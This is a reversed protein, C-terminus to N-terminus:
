PFISMGTIKNILLGSPRDLHNLEAGPYLTTIVTKGIIYRGEGAMLTKTKLGWMNHMIVPQGQYQGLYLVIHGPMWILTRLAIGQTRIINEKDKASLGALNIRRGQRAQQSSNRPLWFGFPTMYDRTMASCDRNAYMGGWGYPQGMFGQALFVQNDLTMPLPFPAMELGKMDAKVLVAKRSADAAPMLLMPRTPSEMAVPYIAGIHTMCRFVGETDIIPRDDRLPVAFHDSQFRAMFAEDVMALNNVPVWGYVFGAEVLAWEKDRTLHCVHVPTGAWLVSYQMYDFPYGEGPRDFSHFGPHRTPLARAHTDMITIARADQNPFTEQDCTAVLRTIRQTPWPQLNEGIVKSTGLTNISRLLNEAPYLTAAKLHWPAFFHTLYQKALRSQNPIHSHDDMSGSNAGIIRSVDQPITQVDEISGGLPPRSCAVCLVVLFWVMTM